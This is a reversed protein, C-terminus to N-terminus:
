FEKWPIQKLLKLMNSYHLSARYYFVEKMATLGKSLDPIPHSFPLECKEPTSLYVMVKSQKEALTMTTKLENVGRLELEFVRGQNLTAREQPQLIVDLTSNPLSYTLTIEDNYSISEFKWELQAALWGQLYIAQIASHQLLGSELNNYKVILRDCQQLYKLKEPSHFTQAIADRWGSINAWSVDMFDIKLQTIKNLMKSSFEKLDKACESDYVLRTALMELQPLIENDSTPNQGWVLYIPLDPILKPLLVFPVKPLLSSSVKIAYHDCSGNFKKEFVTSAELHNKKFEEGCEIFIVRCPYKEIFPQVIHQFYKARRKEQTYVILNFLYGKIDNKEERTKDIKMLNDMNCYDGVDAKEVSLRM